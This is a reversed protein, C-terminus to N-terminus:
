AKKLVRKYVKEVNLAYNKASFKDISKTTNNTIKQFKVQNETLHEYAEIFDDDKNFSVGNIDEQIVGELNSDWKVLLPLGSAM